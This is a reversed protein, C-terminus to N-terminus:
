FIEATYIIRTENEMELILGGDQHIDKFLGLLTEKATKVTIECGIGVLYRKYQQVLDLSDISQIHTDLDEFWIVLASLLEKFEIKVDTEAAVNTVPYQIEINQPSHLLNLGMSVLFANDAKEILVGGVKKSHILIDNPWKLEFVAKGTFSVLLECLKIAVVMPLKFFESGELELPVVFTAAFNGQPCEWVRGYRGYGQTQFDSAVVFPLTLCEAQKKAETHTSEIPTRIIKKMKM